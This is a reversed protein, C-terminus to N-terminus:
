RKVWPQMIDRNWGFVLIQVDHVELVRNLAEPLPSPLYERDAQQVQLGVASAGELAEEQVCCCRVCCGVVRTSGFYWWCILPMGARVLIGPRRLVIGTVFVGDEPLIVKLSQFLLAIAGEFFPYLVDAGIIVRFPEPHAARLAAHAEESGWDLAMASVKDVPCSPAAYKLNSKLLTVIDAIGDTLVIESAWQSCLLGCLGTGAGMELVPRGIINHQMHVLYWGLFTAGPWVIQGTLDIDTQSPCLM